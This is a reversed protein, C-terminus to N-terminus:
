PRIELTFPEGAAWRMFRALAPRSVLVARQMRGDNNPMKGRREGPAICGQLQTTWGLASDGALNASHILVNTRGPVDKVEYVRGFRPSKVIECRYTGPPICSIQRQNDRWPLEITYVQQGGFLLTGYTGEDSPPERQLTAAKM